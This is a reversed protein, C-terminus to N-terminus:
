CGIATCPPFADPHAARLATVAFIPPLSLAFMLAWTAPIRAWRAPGPSQSLVLPALIAAYVAMEPPAAVVAGLPNSLAM